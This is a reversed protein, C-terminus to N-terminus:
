TGPLGGSLGAEQGPWGVGASCFLVPSWSPPPQRTLLPTPLSDPAPLLNLPTFTSIPDCVPGPFPLCHVHTPAECHSRQAGLVQYSEPCPGLHGPRVQERWHAGGPLWHVGSGSELAVKLICLPFLAQVPELILTVGSHSLPCLM